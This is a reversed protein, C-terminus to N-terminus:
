FVSQRFHLVLGGAWLPRALEGYAHDSPFEDGSEGWRGFLSPILVPRSLRIIM